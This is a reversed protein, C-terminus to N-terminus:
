PEAPELAPPHRARWVCVRNRGARKARYLAVDAREMLAAAREQPDSGEVLLAGQLSAVGVSVTVQPDQTHLAISARIREAVDTATEEETHPLLVAFEEGGVRAVVDSERTATVLLEAVRRLVRDGASHGFQDNVQKFHDVDIMLFSTGEVATEPRSRRVIDFLYRRSHLGTLEDIVALSELAAYIRANDLALSAQAAFLRGRQQELATFEPAGPRRFVALLGLSHDRVVLPFAQAAEFPRPGAAEDPPDLRASWVTSGAPEEPELFLRRTLELAEPGDPGQSLLEGPPSAGPQSLVLVATPCRLVRRAMELVHGRLDETSLSALLAHSGEYLEVATQLRRHDLARELHLLLEAPDIPVPLSSWAGHALCAVAEDWRAPPAAVIVGMAPDISRLRDLAGIFLSPSLLGLDVVALDFRRQRLLEAARDTSPATVASYGARALHGLLAERAGGFGCVLVSARPARNDTGRTAPGTSGGSEDLM